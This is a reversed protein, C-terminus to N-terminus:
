WDLDVYGSTSGYADPTPTGRQPTRPYDDGWPHTEAGARARARLRNGYAAGDSKNDGQCWAQWTSVDLAPAGDALYLTHQVTPYLPHLYCGKGRRICGSHHCPADRVFPQGCNECNTKDALFAKRMRAYRTGSTGKRHAPRPGRKRPQNWSWGANEQEPAWEDILRHWLDPRERTARAHLEDRDVELTVIEAHAQRYWDMRHAPPSSDVILVWCGTSRSSDLAARIAVGRMRQVVPTLHDQHGHTVTSGIAQALLDYDLVIPDPHGAARLEAARQQVLTSKGSVPPGAVVLVPM